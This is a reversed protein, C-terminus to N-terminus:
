SMLFDLAFSVHMNTAIELADEDITYKSSHLPHVAGKSENGCGVFIFVGPIRELYFAFDEAGTVPPYDSLCSEGFLKSAVGRALTVCSDENVTPPAGVSYKFDIDGGFSKAINRSIREISIPIKERSEKSYARITGEFNAKEPIINAKTGANIKCVSVVAPDQPDIERSVISQLNTIIASSILIPDVALHPFGGHGGKGIVEINFYDASSMRAGYGISIQGTPIDSIMHIGFIADISNLEGEEIILKAGALLEEGPQFFLKVTGEIQDSIENLVTAAGLLCAIHSDHGCAHSIGDNVSCFDFGTEEKVPLADIDARLAVTKGPRSGNITAIVATEGVVKFDIGYHKLQEQIKKSTDYEKMGLEPHKHFHRRLEVIENSKEKVLETIKNM